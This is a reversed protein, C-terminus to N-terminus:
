TRPPPLQLPWRTHSNLHIPLARVKKPGQPRRKGPQKAACARSLGSLAEPHKTLFNLLHAKFANKLHSSPLNLWKRFQEQPLAKVSDKRECTCHHFGDEACLEASFLCWVKIKVSTQLASWKPSAMIFDLALSLFRLKWFFNLWHPVANLLESLLLLTGSTWVATLNSHSCTLCRSFIDKAYSWLFVSPQHPNKRVWM